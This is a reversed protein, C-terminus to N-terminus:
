QVSFRNIYCFTTADDFAIALTKGLSFATLATALMAKVGDATVGNQGATVYFYKPTNPSSCTSTDNTFNLIFSGDSLPYVSTLTSQLYATAARVNSIGAILTLGVMAARAFKATKNWQPSLGTSNQLIMQVETTNGQSGMNKQPAPDM